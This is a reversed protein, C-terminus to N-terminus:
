IHILSLDVDVDEAASQDVDEAPSLDEATEDIAKDLDDVGNNKDRNNFLNQWTFNAM